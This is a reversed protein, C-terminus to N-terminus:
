GERNNKESLGGRLMGRVGLHSPAGLPTFVIATVHSYKKGEDPAKIKFQIGSAAYDAFTQNATKNHVVQTLDQTIEDNLFVALVQGKELQFDEVVFGFDKLLKKAKTEGVAWVSYRKDAIDRSYIREDYVVKHSLTLLEIGQIPIIMLLAIIVFRM